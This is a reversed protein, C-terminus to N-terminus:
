YFVTYKRINETRRTWDDIGAQNFATFYSTGDPRTHSFLEDCETTRVRSM